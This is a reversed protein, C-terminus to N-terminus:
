CFFLRKESNNSGPQSKELYFAKRTLTASRRKFNMIFSNKIQRLSPTQLQEPVILIYASILKGAQPFTKLQM